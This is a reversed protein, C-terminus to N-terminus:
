RAEEPTSGDWRLDCARLAAVREDFHEYSVIGASREASLLWYEAAEVAGADLLRGIRAPLTDFARHVYPLWTGRPHQRNFEGQAVQARLEFNIATHGTRHESDTTM